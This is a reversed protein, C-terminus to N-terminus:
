GPRLCARRRSTDRPRARFLVAALTPEGTASTAPTWTSSAPARTTASAAPRLRMPPAACRHAAPPGAVRLDVAMARMHLSHPGRRPAHPAAHRQDRALPLRLVGPDPGSTELSRRLSWLLDLLQPDIPCTTDTGGTACTTPRRGCRRRCTAAMPSTSPRSANRRYSLSSARCQREPSRRPKPTAPRAHELCALRIPCCCARFTAPRPSALMAQETM